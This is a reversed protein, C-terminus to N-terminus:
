WIAAPDLLAREIAADVLLMSVEFDYDDSGDDTWFVKKLRLGYSRGRQASFCEDAGAYAFGESKCRARIGLVLPRTCSGSSSSKCGAQEWGSFPYPWKRRARGIAERQVTREEVFSVRCNVEDVRPVYERRFLVSVTSTRYLWYTTERQVDSRGEITLERGSRSCAALPPQTLGGTTKALAFLGPEYEASRQAVFGDPAPAVPESGALALSNLLSLAAAAAGQKSFLWREFRYGRTCVETRRSGSQSRQRTLM